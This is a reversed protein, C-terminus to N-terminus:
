QTPPQGPQWTKGGDVSYRYKGTSPSHQIIPASSGGGGGTNGSGKRNAYSEPKVNGMTAYGQVWANAHQIRAQLNEPSQAEHFNKMLDDRVKEGGSMGYHVRVLATAYMSLDQDLGAFEPDNMGAKNVWLENWRGAAPGLKDKLEAVEQQVTKTQETVTQAFQRTARTSGPINAAAPAGTKEAEGAKQYRIVGQEDITQVPRGEVFIQARAVGPDVKTKKTFEEYGKLFAVDEPTRENPPKSYIQIARDDKNAQKPPASAKLALSAEQVTMGKFEPHGVAEAVEDSIVRKTKLENLKANFENPTLMEGPQVVKADIMEQTPRVTRSAKLGAEKKEQEFDVAPPTFGETSTGAL